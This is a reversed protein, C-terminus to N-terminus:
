VIVASVKQELHMLQFLLRILTRLLDLACPCLSVCSPVGTYICVCVPSGVDATCAHLSLGRSQLYGELAKM